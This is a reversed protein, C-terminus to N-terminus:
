GLLEDDPVSEAPSARRLLGLREQMPMARWAPWAARAADMARAADQTSAEAFRGLVERTDTPNRKEIWSGTQVDAGDVFMAHERGLGARVAALAADFRTHMEEPPNFMTSYTLKFSM